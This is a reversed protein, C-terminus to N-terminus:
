PELQTSNTKYKYIFNAQIIFYYFFEYQELSLFLSSISFGVVSVLCSENIIWMFNKDDDSNTHLSKRNPWLIKILSYIIYLYLIGGLWGCEGTLQFFTNHAIRPQKDSYSPFAQGFSGIGVGTLLNANAMKVAAEWAELRGVASYDQNYESLSSTRHLLRDGGQWLLIALFVPVIGLKLISLRSRLAILFICCGLSILGGRSSTLFVVHWGLTVLILIAGRFIKKSTLFFCYFLSPLTVIVLAAFVNEDYYIGGNPGSPGNLRDLDIGQVYQLNGWIIMVIATLVGALWFYKMRKISNILFFSCTVIIFSKNFNLFVTNPNFFNYSNKVEVFPGFFFSVIIVGWLLFFLTVLKTCHAYILLRGSIFKALTGLIIPISILLFPRLGVFSWFWINQPVILAFIYYVIIGVWPYFISIFSNFILILNLAITGM